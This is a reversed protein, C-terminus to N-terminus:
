GHDFAWPERLWQESARKIQEQELSDLYVAKIALQRRLADLVIHAVQARRAPSAERLLPHAEAWVDEAASLEDLSRYAIKLLGVQELNPATVRWGRRLDQYVLYGIVSRLAEDTSERAGFRAGPNSAYEEFELGMRETVRQAIVDHRLGEEGADRVAALLATRVLTVQIFDNFHGAQLSADQRNDTFSLLKRASASL